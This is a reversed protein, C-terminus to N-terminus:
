FLTIQNPNVPIPEPAPIEQQKEITDVAFLDPQCAAGRKISGIWKGSAASFVEKTGDEFISPAILHTLKGNNIQSFNIM